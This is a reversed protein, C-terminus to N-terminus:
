PQKEREEIQEIAEAPGCVVVMGTEEAIKELANFSDDEPFTLADPIFLVGAGSGQKARVVLAKLLADREARLQRVEAEDTM